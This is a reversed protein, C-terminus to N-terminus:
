VNILSSQFIGNVQNVTLDILSDISNTAGVAAQAAASYVFLVNVVTPPGPLAPAEALNDPPAAALAPDAPAPALSAGPPTPTYTVDGPVIVIAPATSQTTSATAPQGLGCCPLAAPDTQGPVPAAPVH